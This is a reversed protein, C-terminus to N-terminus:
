KHAGYFDLWSSALAKCMARCVLDNHCAVFTKRKQTM